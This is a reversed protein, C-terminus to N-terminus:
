RPSGIKLRRKRWNAFILSFHARSDIAMLFEQACDKLRYYKTLGNIIHSYLQLIQFGIGDYADQKEPDAVRCHNMMSMAEEAAGLLTGLAVLPTMPKATSACPTLTALIALSCIPLRGAFVVARM